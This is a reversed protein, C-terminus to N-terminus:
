RHGEKRAERIAAYVQEAQAPTLFDHEVDCAVQEFTVTSAHDLRNRLCSEQLHRRYEDPTM